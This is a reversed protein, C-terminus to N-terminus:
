RKCSKEWETNVEAIKILKEKASRRLSNSKVIMEQKGSSEAKFALKDGDTKMSKVDTELRKKKCKLDEIEDALSKRMESKVAQVKSRKKEDLFAMYKQRAGAFSLLLAKDITINHLGDVSNVYDCIVRQAICTENLMNEVEIERNVSFGHEVLFQGHSLLLLLKCLNWLSKEKHMREYFLIDLRHISPDFNVMDLSSGHEDLFKEFQQSIEDCETDKVKNIEVLCSLM